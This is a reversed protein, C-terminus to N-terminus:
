ARGNGDELEAISLAARDLIREVASRDVRGTLQNIRAALRDLAPQLTSADAINTNTRLEIEALLPRKKELLRRGHQTAKYTGPKLERAQEVMREAKLAALAPYVSGPSPRYSPGFRRSLDALLEYGSRPRESLLVLLVLPLEGPM